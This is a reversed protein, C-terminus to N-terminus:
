FMSEMSIIRVQSDDNKIKDLEELIKQMRKKLDPDVTRDIMDQIFEIAVDRKDPNKMVGIAIDSIARSVSPPCEPNDAARLFNEVAKLNDDLYFYYNYGMLYPIQWADPFLKEGKELVELSKEPRGANMSLILGGFLYPQLFYPDLETVITILDPLYKYRADVDKKWESYEASNELNETLQRSIMALDDTTSRKGFYLVTKIWYIDSAVAAFGGSLMKIYKPHPVYYLDRSPDDEPVGGGKEHNQIGIVLGILIAFWFIKNSLLRM